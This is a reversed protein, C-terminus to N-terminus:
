AALARAVAGADCQPGCPTQRVPDPGLQKILKALAAVPSGSILLDLEHMPPVQWHLKDMTEPTIKQAQEVTERNLLQGPNPQVTPMGDLRGDTVRLAEPLLRKAAEVKREVARVVREFPVTRPDAGLSNKLRAIASTRAIVRMLLVPNELPPLAVRRLKRVTRALHEVAEPDALDVEQWQAIAVLPAVAKLKALLPRWPGVPAQPEEEKPEFVGQTAADRVTDAQGNLLAIRTWPRADQEVWALDTMRRNLTGVIRALKRVQDADAPDTGLDEECAQQAQFLGLVTAMAQPAMPPEAIEADLWEEDPVWAPSPLWRAALWDSVAPILPDPTTEAQEAADPEPEVEDERLAAVTERCFCGM